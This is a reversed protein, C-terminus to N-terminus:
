SVDDVEPAVLRIVLTDLDLAQRIESATTKLVTEIDLSERIRSTVEGILQEQAAHRQTDLYLRASELAVNLQDTLASLLDIEDDTWASGDPKRGDVVGIVQDRVHLPIALTNGTEGTATEGTRLATHMEPRWMDGAPKTTQRDSLFGWDSQTLLLNKWAERTLEGYAHQQALLSDELQQFLRANRVSNAVQDAVTQLVTIDEDAFFAEQESQVTMAGLIQGGARLPLALESRTRPLYPNSFHVAAEGVDLQIDPRGTAVCRGIMSDSGVELRWGQALMQAGAPGSGARLVAHKGLEDVLFLGVYYLDFRESMLEVVQPLLENLDLVATTTRSVEAATMLGRTREAVRRELGALIERLQVTMSNFAAALGVIETPGQLAAQLDLDGEAIRSVTATLDLVPIALRRSLVIAVLITIAAVLVVVVGSIITSQILPRMGESIPMETFVAWDPEGLTVYAGVMNTAKIGQFTGTGTESAVAPGSMFEAVLELNGVNEGRLVRSIDSLALLNGHRDVVYALGAEGVKLGGVLDWMFKLNVESLLVGQFDGFLDQVPVAMIVLPESTALDVYVPSVYRNGQRVRELWDSEVQELPNESMSQSLRSVRTQEQGQKDMFALQRFAPQLGMLNGLIKEQEQATVTFDSLRAATELVDFRIQIFDSVTSAANQAVLQQESILVQRGLNAVLVLQALYAVLLAALTLVVFATILTAALSRSTKAGQENPKTNQIFM